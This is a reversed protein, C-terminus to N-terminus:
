SRSIAALKQEAKKRMFSYNLNSLANFRAAKKYSEKANKVDGKGEYALALRYLTYPNQQNAKQFNTLAQDYNKEALAISGALEHALWIQFTNKAAEAQTRFAEAKAKATTLDKKMLAVRGANYLHGRKANEKIAQSLNSAETLQLSKEFKALAEDYKGSEYLINGITGLDGSMAAADNIKEGL